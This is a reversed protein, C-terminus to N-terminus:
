GRVKTRPLKEIEELPIYWISKDTFALLKKQLDLWYLQRLDRKSIDPLLNPRIRALQMSQPWYLKGWDGSKNDGENLLLSGEPGPRLHMINDLKPL